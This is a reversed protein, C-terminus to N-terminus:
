RSLQTTSLVTDFIASSFGGAKTIDRSATPVKYLPTSQFCILAPAMAEQPM